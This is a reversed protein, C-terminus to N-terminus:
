VGLMSLGKAFPARAEPDHNSRINLMTTLVDLCQHRRLIECAIAKADPELAAFEAQLRELCWLRYRSVRANRYRVGQVTVDFHSKRSGVAAANALLYPLYASGIETLIPSWDDPIGPLWEGRNTSGRAAWLRAVWAYTLPAIERMIAAPVPDISFHRFIPGFFGIDAISPRDGLLYPRKAFIAELSALSRLYIGEVQEVNQRDIGDGQTFLYRQRARVAFRKVFHPLKLDVMLEDALQRAALNAGLAYYWRYHMAPRWLWEDAYDELLLSFFRLVPDSPILAYDPFTQDLWGIIPTSDTLWRGDALEVAPMQFVGTSQPILAKQAAVNMAKFAYPIEKYRLAAELKGTFYSIASGHVVMPLIPTIAANMEPHHPYMLTGGAGVPSGLRDDRNSTM